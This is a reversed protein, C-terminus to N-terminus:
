APNYDKLAECYLIKLDNNITNRDVKMLQAIRTAPVGHKFHLKYVEMRRKIRQSRTFPAYKQKYNQMPRVLNINIKKNEEVFEQNIEFDFPEYDGSPIANPNPDHSDDRAHSQDEIDNSIINGNSIKMNKNKNM